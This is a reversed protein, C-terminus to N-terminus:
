NLLTVSRGSSKRELDFSIRQNLSSKSALRPKDSNSRSTEDDGCFVQLIIEKEELNSTIGEALKHLFLFYYLVTLFMFIYTILSMEGKLDEVILDTYNAYVFLGFVFSKEIVKSYKEIPIFMQPKYGSDKFLNRQISLEEIYFNLASDLGSVAITSSCNTITDIISCADGFMLKMYESFPYKETITEQLSKMLDEQVEKMQQSRSIIEQYSSPMDYNIILEEYSPHGVIYLLANREWFLTLPTLMRRMGGFNTHILEKKMLDLLISQPGYSISLYFGLTLLALGLIKLFPRITIMKYFMKVEKRSEEEIGYEQEHFFYLRNILKAKTKNFIKSANKLILNWFKRNSKEVLFFSIIGLVVMLTPPLLCMLEVYRLYLFILDLSKILDNMVTMVTENLTNIYFSPVNKLIFMKENNLSKFTEFSSNSITSSYQAINEMANILHGKYPFFKENEPRYLTLYTDSFYSKKEKLFPLTIERYNDILSQLLMSNNKLTSKYFSDNFALTYNKQLLELSYTNSLVSCSLYRMLGIDFIISNVSISQIVNLIIMLNTIIVLIHFFTLVRIIINLIKLVKRIFHSGKESEAIALRKINDKRLDHKMSVKLKPNKESLIETIQVKKVKKMHFSSFTDQHILDDMFYIIMLECGDISLLNKKMYFTKSKLEYEFIEEVQHSNILKEINEFNEFLNEGIFPFITKVRDSFSVIKGDMFCLIMNKTTNNFPKFGAVFYPFGKYFVLRFQMTVEICAKSEDILFLHSRTLESSNRFFLYRFLVKEHIGDFPPPILSTFNKGILRSELNIKLLSYISSNAYVITGLNRSWGSIVLLPDSDDFNSSEHIISHSSYNNMGHLTLLDQGESSNLVEQLFSAYIKVFKKDVGFKLSVKRATKKYKSVLEGIKKIRKEITTITSNGLINQILNLLEVITKEDLRQIVKFYNFFKVLKLDDSVKAIKKNIKKFVSYLLFNTEIQYKYQFYNLNM